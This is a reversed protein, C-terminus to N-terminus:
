KTLFSKSNRFIQIGRSVPQPLSLDIGAFASIFHVYEEGANEEVAIRRLDFRRTVLEANFGSDFSFAIEYGCQAALQETAKTYDTSLGVPYAVASITEGLEQEIIEKSKSLEELQQEESLHALIAHSHSHSGVEMGAARMERIEDWNMFLSTAADTPMKCDMAARLCQLKIDVPAADRKFVRLVERIAYGANLPDMPITQSGPLTLHRHKTNKVMWAIEDWWPASQSGIFATPVFFVASLKHAKLIPFANTYNDRYGDDFTILALPANLSRGRELITALDAITVTKFRSKITALQEDFHAEDCSFVNPDFRTANANGVRHYNFVYLGSRLHRWRYATIGIQRFTVRKLQRTNV